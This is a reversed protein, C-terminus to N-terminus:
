SATCTLKFFLCNFMEILCNCLQPIQPSTQEITNKKNRNYGVFIIFTDGCDFDINRSQRGVCNPWIMEQGANNKGTMQLGFQIM